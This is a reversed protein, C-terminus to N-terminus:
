KQYKKILKKIRKITNKHKGIENHYYDLDIGYEAGKSVSEFESMTLIGKELLLIHNNILQFRYGKKLGDNGVLIKYVIGESIM